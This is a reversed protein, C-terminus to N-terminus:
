NMEEKSKSFTYKKLKATSPNFVVGLFHVPVFFAESLTSSWNRSTLLATSNPFQQYTSLASPLARIIQDRCKPLLRLSLSGSQFEAGLFFPPSPARVYVRIFSQKTLLRPVGVVSNASPLYRGKPIPIKLQVAQGRVGEAEFVPTVQLHPVDM